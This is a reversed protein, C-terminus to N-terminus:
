SPAFFSIAFRATDGSGKVGSNVVGPPDSFLKKADTPSISPLMRGGEPMTEAISRLVDRWWSVKGAASESDNGDIDCDTERRRKSGAPEIYGSLGEVAPLPLADPGGSGVSDTGISRGGEGGGGTAADSATGPRAARDEDEAAPRNPHLKEWCCPPLSHSTSGAATKAASAPAIAGSIRARKAGGEVSSSGGSSFDRQLLMIRIKPTDREALVRRFGTAALALDFVKPTMYPSAVLCRRPLMLFM